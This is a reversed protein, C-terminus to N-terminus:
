GPKLPNPLIQNLAQRRRQCGGCQKLGVAKTATAILDGLGRAPGAYHPCRACIGVGARGGNGAVPLTCSRGTRHACNVDSLVHRSHLDM